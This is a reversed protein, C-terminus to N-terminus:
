WLLATAYFKKNSKKLKADILDRSNLAQWVALVNKYFAPLNTLGLLKLDHNCQFLFPGGVKHLMSALLACWHSGLAKCYRNVLAINLSNVVDSFNVM